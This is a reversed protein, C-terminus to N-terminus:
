TFMPERRYGCGVYQLSVSKKANKILNVIDDHCKCGKGCRYLMGNGKYYTCTGIFGYDDEYEYFLVGDIIIEVGYPLNNLGDAVRGERLMKASEKVREEKSKDEGPYKPYRSVYKISNKRGYIRM